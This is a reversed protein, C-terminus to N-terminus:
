DSRVTLTSSDGRDAFVLRLWELVARVKPLRQKSQHVVMWLDRSPIPGLDQAGVQTPCVERVRQLTSAHRKPLIAVGLGAAVAIGLSEVDETVLRPPRSTFTREAFRQEPIHSLSGALGLWPLESNLELGEHAFFGYSETHVKQAVLEGRMPRAFRLALDADGAALSSMQNDALIRLRLRPYSLYFEPLQPTLAWRVLEGVTSITVLGSLELQEDLAAEATLAAEMMPKVATFLAEGRDTLSVPSDRLLIPSGGLRELSQIHRSVTSQSVGLAKAAATLSGLRAVAEFTHLLEWDM